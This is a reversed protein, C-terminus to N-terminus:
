EIPLTETNIIADKFRNRLRDVVDIGNVDTRKTLLIIDIEGYVENAQEVERWGGVEEILKNSPFQPRLKLLLYVRDNGHIM